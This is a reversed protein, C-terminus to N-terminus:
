NTIGRTVHLVRSRNEARDGSLWDSFIGCIGEQLDLTFTLTYVRMRATLARVVRPTNDAAHVPRRKGHM